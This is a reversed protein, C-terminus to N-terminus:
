KKLMAYLVFPIISIGFIIAFLALAVPLTTGVVASVAPEVDDAMSTTLTSLFETVM